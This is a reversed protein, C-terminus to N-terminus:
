LGELIQIIESSAGSQIALEKATKGFFFGDTADVDAGANILAKVVEPNKNYIAALMLATHGEKSKANVDIGANTLITIVEPCDTNVAAIMLATAGNEDVANVDAGADLLMKINKTNESFASALMLVSVSDGNKANIDDGCNILDIIKENTFLARVHEAVQERSTASSMANKVENMFDRIPGGFAETVFLAISMVCLFIKKM